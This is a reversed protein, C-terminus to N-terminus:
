RPLGSQGGSRRGAGFGILFRLRKEATSKSFGSKGDGRLKAAIWVYRLRPM